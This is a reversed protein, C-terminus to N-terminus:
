GRKSKKSSKTVGGSKKKKKKKSPKRLYADIQEQSFGRDRMQEVTHM